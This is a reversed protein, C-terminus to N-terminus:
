FNYKVGASISNETKYKDGIKTLDAKRVAELDLGIGNSFNRNLYLGATYKEVDKKGYDNTDYKYSFTQYEGYVSAYVKIPSFYKAYNLLYNVQSYNDNPSDETWTSTVEDNIQGEADWFKTKDVDDWTNTADYWYKSSNYVSTGTFSDKKNMGYYLGTGFTGGFLDHKYQIEAEAWQSKGDDTFSKTEKETLVNVFGSSTTESVKVTDTGAKPTANTAAYLAKMELRSKPTINVTASVKPKITDSGSSMNGWKEEAFTLQGSVYGFGFSKGYEPSLEIKMSGDNKNDENYSKKASYGLGFGGWNSGKFWGEAVTWETFALKEDTGNLENNWSNEKIGTKVGTRIYGSEDAFASASISLLATILLLNKKM